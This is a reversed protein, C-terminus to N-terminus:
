KAQHSNLWLVQGCVNEISSPNSHHIVWTLRFWAEACDLWFSDINSHTVINQRWQAFDKENLACDWFLTGLDNPLLLQLM